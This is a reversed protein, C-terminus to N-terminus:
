GDELHLLLSLSMLIAAIPPAWAALAAPIQGNEGLVQAFDRIFYFGFGFLIAALAMPGTRGL